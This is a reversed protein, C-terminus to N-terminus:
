FPWILPALLVSVVGVVVDLPIGLRFYDAYRYGGPGYVMLNTQYGIPCAFGASAAVMLTMVFPWASVQLGQATALAVPFMLAAVANNTLIETLLCTAAYFAALTLWPNDGGLSLMAGAVVKAAGSVEMARGLGLAAGIAVLVPWDLANRADSVTCCGTAIMLFAALLAAVLMNLGGFAAALVMAALIALAVGAREHRRPTSNEVGSVLFFDRSDRQQLAFSPNAEILLTDGPRLVIDGIKGRLREGNRAVALVVANYRNRFRGDRITKGVLPCTNSVVAEFLRRRYRPSDLKFVQDTAPVLGRLNQLDRISEVVGVLVLRDNAKLRQDPDVAVLSEGDREIEAVFAGPLHRLGAEEITKGILPSGPPVVMEAMYERAERLRSSASGRDPLLAPGALWIFLCGIVAVPLGIWTIDFLGIPALTGSKLVLGSVILNTSTGILTCTGGLITAYNFPLMLKSAPLRLKKAWEGIAPVLMAVVATNNLFASIPLAPFVVRAVASRLSRPRGLARQAIWDIAGTERLGATVAFLAAVTLVGPNSFGAFADTVELIGLKWGAATPVPIVLLLALAGLLLADAPVRTTGLLILVLGVTCLM